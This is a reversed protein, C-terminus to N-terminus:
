AGQHPKLGWELLQCLWDKPSHHGWGLVWSLQQCARCSQCVALHHPLHSKQVPGPPWLGLRAMELLQQWLSPGLGDAPVPGIWPRYLPISPLSQLPSSSHLSASTNIQRKATHNAKPPVTKSPGQVARDRHQLKYEWILQCTLFQNNGMDLLEADSATEKSFSIEWARCWIFDTVALFIYM